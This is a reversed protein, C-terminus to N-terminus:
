NKSSDAEREERSNIIKRERGPSHCQICDTSKNWQKHCDICQRHYAGKLDPKTIDTRNREKEHCYECNVIKGPPNYHHCMKCGGSIGSMEAHARHSFNVPDYLDSIGKFEDM